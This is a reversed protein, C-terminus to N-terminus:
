RQATRTWIVIVGCQPNGAPTGTANFQPPLRSSGAYAEIAEVMDPYFDDVGIPSMRFPRGDVYLAAPCLKGDIGRIRAFSVFQGLGNPGSMVKAGPLSRLLDTLRQPNKKEIDERTIYYGIRRERREWFGGLHPRAPTTRVAVSDVELPAIQLLVDLRVPEAGNVAITDSRTVYGVRETRLEYRGAALSISFAGDQGSELRSQRSTSLDRLVLQAAAVGEGSARDLVRGILRGDQACAVIPMALVLLASTAMRLTGIPM